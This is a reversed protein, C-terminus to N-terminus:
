SWGAGDIRDLRIIKEPSMSVALFGCREIVSVAHWTSTGGPGRFMVTQSCAGCLDALVDDAREDGVQRRVHHDIALLLVIDYRRSLARKELHGLDLVWFRSEAPIRHFIVQAIEISRRHSDFGHILSPSRKAIEYAVIGINCGVDLVSKDKFDIGHEFLGDSRSHLTGSFGVIAPQPLFRNLTPRQRVLADLRNRLQSRLVKSKSELRPLLQVM